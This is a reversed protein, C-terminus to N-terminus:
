FHMKTLLPSTRIPVYDLSNKYAQINYYGLTFASGTKDNVVYLSQSINNNNTAAQQVTWGTVIYASDHSYISYVTHSNIGLHFAYGNGNFRYVRSDSVIYKLDSSGALM